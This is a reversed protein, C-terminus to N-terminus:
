LAANLIDIRLLTVGNFCQESHAAHLLVSLGTGCSFSIKEGSVPNKKKGPRLGSSVQPTGGSEKEPV